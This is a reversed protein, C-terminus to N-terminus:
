AKQEVPADVFFPCPLQAIVKGGKKVIIIKAM